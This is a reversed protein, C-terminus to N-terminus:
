LVIEMNEVETGAWEVKCLKGTCIICCLLAREEETRRGECAATDCMWREEAGGGWNRNRVFSKVGLTTTGEGSDSGAFM